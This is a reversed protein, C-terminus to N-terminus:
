LLLINDVHLYECPNTTNINGPPELVPTSSQTTPAWFTRKNITYSALKQLCLVRKALALSTERAEARSSGGWVLM